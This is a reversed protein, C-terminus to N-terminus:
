SQRREDLRGNGQMPGRREPPKALGHWAGVAFTVPSAIVAARWAEMGYPNGYMAAFVLLELAAFMSLGIGARVRTRVPVGRGRGVLRGRLLWPPLLPCRHPLVTRGLLLPVEMPALWPPVVTKRGDRVEMRYSGLNTSLNAREGLSRTRSRQAFIVHSRRWSRARRSLACTHM